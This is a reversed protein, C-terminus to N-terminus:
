PANTKFMVDVWYNAANYSNNPFVGNAGYAYVGNSSVGNALAHLPPNDVGSVFYNLDANYYGSSTHYSAVYVTNNTIVVPTAFFAQQWGLATENSFTVTAMSIGNSSWLNGLHTGTNSANKYFRIGIITGAVDSTFKVGLELSAGPDNVSQNIPAATDPWLSYVLANLTTFSWSWDNTLFNGAVDTVRGVTATYITSFALPAQPTLVATFLSANYSVTAAVPRNLSDRLTITNTNITAADMAEEFAVSVTTYLSVDKAGPSPLVEIVSPPTVDSTYDIRYEGTLAPFVAYRTGKIWKEESAIPSGNYHVASVSYNDPMPAMAQLGRAKPDANVSFTQAVGNNWHISKLSSANRADLWTLLQRASIIPMGRDLASAVIADSEPSPFTIRTCMPWLPAMIARRGGLGSGAFFRVTYPYSQGSEDTMQTAAQYVDICMVQEHRFADAHGFGHFVGAQEAM